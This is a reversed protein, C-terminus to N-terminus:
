TLPSMVQCRVKMAQKNIYDKLPGEQLDDQSVDIPTVSYRNVPEFRVYELMLPDDTTLTELCAELLCSEGM